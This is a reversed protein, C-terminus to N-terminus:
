FPKLKKNSVKAHTDLLSKLEKPLQSIFFNDLPYEYQMKEVVLDLLRTGQKFDKQVKTKDRVSKQSLWIKHLAMWRPDPAVIPAPKLDNSLLVHRVPTGMLLWEQEMLPIPRFGGLNPNGNIVSPAALLEVEYGHANVAQFPKKHNLVYTKDIGQLLQILRLPKQEHNENKEDFTNRYWTLDFDDTSMNEPFLLTQAHIEYAVFANTGVVLVDRGLANEKDLERLIQAVKSDVRNAKSIRFYKISEQLSEILTDSRTDLYEKEQKYLNLKDLNDGELRGISTSSSQSTKKQYLYSHGKVIKEYLAYPFKKYERENDIYKEYIAEFNAIDRLEKDTFNLNNM